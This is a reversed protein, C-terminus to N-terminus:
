KAQGSSDVLTYLENRTMQNGSQAISVTRDLSGQAKDLSEQVNQQATEFQAKLQDGQEASYYGKAVDQDVITEFDTAGSGLMTGETSSAQALASPAFLLSASLMTLALIKPVWNNM